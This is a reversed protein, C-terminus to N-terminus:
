KKLFENILKEAEKLAAELNDNIIIKDFQPAHSLEEEAKQLRREISAPSDTSRNQLRERLADMSPPQVFIALARSGLAKKINLGGKVDVDCVLVQGKEWIRGAERKTTGYYNGAYVEEWELFEHRAIKERFTEPTMFYYDVGDKENGRPARSTASISFALEPFKELLHHVITTKGAGSPASFILVAGEKGGASYFREQSIANEKEHIM